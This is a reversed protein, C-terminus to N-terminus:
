NSINVFVVCSVHVIFNLISTNKLLSAILIVLGITIFEKKNKAIFNLQYTVTM